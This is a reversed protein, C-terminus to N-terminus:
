EDAADSTYLLCDWLQANTAFSFDADARSAVTTAYNWPALRAGPYIAGVVEENENGASTTLLVREELERVFSRM